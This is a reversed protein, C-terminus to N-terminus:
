TPAQLRTTTRARRARNCSSGPSRQAEELTVNNTFSLLGLSEGPSLIGGSEITTAGGITGTGGLTASSKVTYDGGGAHVGNVLLTGGEVRTAGTYINTLGSFVQTGTGVKVISVQGGNDLIRGEYSGDAGM